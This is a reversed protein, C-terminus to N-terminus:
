IYLHFYIAYYHLISDNMDVNTCHVKLRGTSFMSSVIAQNQAIKVIFNIERMNNIQIFYNDDKPLFKNLM